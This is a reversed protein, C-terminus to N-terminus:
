PKSGPEEQDRFAFGYVAGAAALAAGGGIAADLGLAVNGLFAGGVAGILGGGFIGLFAGFIAGGLAARLKTKRRM